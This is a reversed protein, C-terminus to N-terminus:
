KKGDRMRLQVRDTMDTVYARSPQSKSPTMLRRNRETDAIAAQSRQRMEIFPDRLWKAMWDLRLATDRASEVM